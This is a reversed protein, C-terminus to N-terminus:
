KSVGALPIGPTDDVIVVGESKMFNLANDPSIGISKGWSIIAERSFVPRSTMAVSSLKKTESTGFSDQYTLAHSGAGAATWLSRPNSSRKPNKM